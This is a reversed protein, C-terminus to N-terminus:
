ATPLLLPYQLRLQEVLDFLEDDLVLLEEHLIEACLRIASELQDGIVKLRDAGHHLSDPTRILFVLKRAAYRDFSENANQRIQGELIIQHLLPSAIRAGSNEFSEDSWPRLKLVFETVFTEVLPKGGFALDFTNTHNFLTQQALDALLFVCERKIRSM